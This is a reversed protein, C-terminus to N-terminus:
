EIIVMNDRMLNMVLCSHVPIIALIDGIKTSQLLKDCVKIIGHEQSLNKVYSNPIIPGWGEEKFHSIYGFIKLGDRSHIYEKSLHVAGGYVVIEKRSTHIAVVPCAIAIGIDSFKCSGILLQMIDYFVFNGPRIEDIGNFNEVISCTPTDGISLKVPSLGKSNLHKRCEDLRLVTENYIKKIAQEGKVKYSHGSHTLLGEFELLKSQHILLAITSIHNLDEWLIGTRHYGTDIKIWINVIYRLNKDLYRVADESEVLLNLTVERALNNILEIELINVPFAVTINKWGNQAFYKAMKLSSVTISKVGYERFITGIQTSQHSKFHPRFEVKNKQAKQAMREINWAVIRKQIILTPETITLILQGKNIQTYFRDNDCCNM